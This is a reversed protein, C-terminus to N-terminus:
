QKQTLRDDMFLNTMERVEKVEEDMGYQYGYHFISQLFIDLATYDRESFYKVWNESFREKIGPNTALISSTSIDLGDWDFSLLKINKIRNYLKYGFVQKMLNKTSEMYDSFSKNNKSKKELMEVESIDDMTMARLLALHRKAELLDNNRCQQLGYEYVVGFFIDLPTMGKERAYEIWTEDFRQNINPSAPDLDVDIVGPTLVKLETNNFDDFIDQGFVKVFLRKIHPKYDIFHTVM